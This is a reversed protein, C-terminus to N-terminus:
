KAAPMPLHVSMQTISGQVSSFWHAVGAPVLVFDGKALVQPTGGQISKGNVNDGNRTPEVLTGGTVITAAGDIIYFLEADKDHIAAGQPVAIRHEINVNYPALRFVRTVANASTGQKAASAAVAKNVEAASMYMGKSLDPAPESGAAPQQARALSASVVIAVAVVLIRM